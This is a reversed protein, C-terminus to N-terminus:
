FGQRWPPLRPDASGARPVPENDYGGYAAYISDHYGANSPLPATGSRQVPPVRPRPVTFPASDAPDASPPLARTPDFAQYGGGRTNTSAPPPRRSQMEFEQPPGRPPAPRAHFSRDHGDFPMNSPFPTRQPPPRAYSQPPPASPARPAPGPYPPARWPGPSPGRRPTGRGPGPTPGRYPPAMQSSSLPMNNSQPTGTLSRPIPNQPAFMQSTNSRIPRAYSGPSWPQDPSPMAGDVMLSRDTNSRMPPRRTQPGPAGHGMAAAGSILPADSGYSTETETRSNSPRLSPIGVAPVTPERKLEPNYPTNPRSEYVPLTTQTAFTSQTDQRALSPTDARDEDPSVLIPVTPQRKIPDLGSGGMRADDKLKKKSEKALAKEIRKGVIKYLRSDIRRRCYNGLSGDNSPVHHWLYTIYM